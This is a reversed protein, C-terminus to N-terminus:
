DAAPVPSFEFKVQAKCETRIHAISRVSALGTPCSQSYTTYDPVVSWLNHGKTRSVASILRCLPSRALSSHTHAHGTEFLEAKLQGIPARLAAQM